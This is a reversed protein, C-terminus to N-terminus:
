PIFRLTFHFTVYLFSFGLYLSVERERVHTFLRESWKANACCFSSSSFSTEHVLNVFMQARSCKHSWCSWHLRTSTKCSFMHFLAAAHLHFLKHSIKTERILLFVEGEMSEQETWMLKRNQGQKTVLLLLNEALKRVRFRMQSSSWFYESSNRGSKEWSDNWTALRGGAGQDLKSNEWSMNGSMNGQATEAAALIHLLPSSWLQRESGLSAEVSSFSLSPCWFIKLSSFSTQDCSACSDDANNLWNNELWRCIPSLIFNM